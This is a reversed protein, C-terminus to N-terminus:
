ATIGQPNWPTAPVAPGTVTHAYLLDHNATFVRALAVLGGWWADYTRRAFAISEPADIMRM